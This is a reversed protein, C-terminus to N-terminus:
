KSRPHTDSGLFFSLMFAKLFCELCLRIYHFGLPLELWINFLHLHMQTELLCIQDERRGTQPLLRENDSKRLVDM